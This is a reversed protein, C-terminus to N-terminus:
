ETDGEQVPHAALAAQVRVTLSMLEEKGTSRPLLVVILPSGEADAFESELALLDGWESDHRPITKEDYRYFELGLRMNSWGLLGWHITM